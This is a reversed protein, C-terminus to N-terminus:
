RESQTGVCPVSQRVDFAEKVFDAGAWGGKAGVGQAGGMLEFGFHVVVGATRHKGL